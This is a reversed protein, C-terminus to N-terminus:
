DYIGKIKISKEDLSNTLFKRKSIRTRTRRRPEDKMDHWEGGRGWFGSNELVKQLYDKEAILAPDVDKMKSVINPVVKVQYIRDIFSRSLRYEIKYNGFSNVNVTREIYFKLRDPLSYYLDVPILKRHYAYYRGMIKDYASSVNREKRIFRVLKPDRITPFWSPTAYALLTNYHKYDYDRTLHSKIELFVLWGRQFPPIDIMPSERILQRVTDLRRSCNFLYKEKKYQKNRNM